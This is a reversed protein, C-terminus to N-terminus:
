IPDLELALEVFARADFKMREVKPADMDIRQFISFGM